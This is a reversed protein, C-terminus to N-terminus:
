KRSFYACRSGGSAVFSHDAVTSERYLLEDKERRLRSLQGQLWERYERNPFLHAHTVDNRPPYWRITRELEAIQDDKRAIERDLVLKRMKEQHSQDDM